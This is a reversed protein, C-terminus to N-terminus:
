WFWPRPRQSAIRSSGTSTPARPLWAVGATWATGYTTTPVPMSSETRLPASWADLWMTSPWAPGVTPPLTFSITTKPNFPNPYNQGLTFADPRAPTYTLNVMEGIAQVEGNSLEVELQYSLETGADVDLGADVFSMLGRTPLIPDANVQQFGRGEDRLVNFSKVEDAGQTTWQLRVDTKEMQASIGSVLVPVVGEVTISIDLCWSNLTGTDGGVNDSIFLQWIGQSDEGDFDDMLGPGDVPTLLDYTTMIDDASGGSRNHLRVVTGTPSTLEVILDSNWTHTLDVSVQVDAINGSSPMMITSKVGLPDSDPISVPDVNCESLDMVTRLEFYVDTVDESEGVVIVQSQSEWGPPGTATVLYTGAYMDPLSWLGDYGTTATAGGPEATISWM